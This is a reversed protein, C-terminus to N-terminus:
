RDHRLVIQAPWEPAHSESFVSILSRDIWAARVLTEVDHERGRFWHERGHESRLAFGDFDGFRDYWISSVKGTIECRGGAARSPHGPAVPHGPASPRRGTVEGTQSPLIQGPNGGFGSVRGEILRQYRLLVPYWGNQHPTVEVRWKLWALLREEPYLLQEKVSITLTYQFAGLLHRWSFSEPQTLTLAKTGKRAIAAAKTGKGARRAQPVPQARPPTLTATAETLQRVAIDYVDGRRVSTPLDVYMLGTYRGAGPPVPILTVGGTPCQITHPDAATLRHAPYMSDALGIVAAADVAPLYFSATSGPPTEGWTVMLEDPKGAASSSRIEFPHPMVRSPDTGPNPGDIWAVNRQALKDSTSTTAGTPIPTDDFRIEAILCQHPAASISGNLSETGTWPGDWQAQAAPPSPILFKSTQNVDLWCGFYTDVEMGAVTTISVANPRDEQTDMDAPANLNVRETAFCPITVYEAGSPGNQVGLLPIKHGPTGNTGWRYTGEGTGVESFNSVTSAAQFLRFFVRVPAITTAVSSTIRVRAVAFNFTPEGSDNDPHFELASLDEDQQLTTDFTDGNTIRGPTNLNTLVNRIYDVADGAGTPNPASFMQHAQNPTVKFFRLDFSLWSPYALPQTPDLDYFYPDEGKALEIDARTTVSVGGATFTAKLTIVAVEHTTLANFANQNAFSITYPYLFTQFDLGLTPDIALVPAPGFTNVDPLNAAITALQGATLGPNLSQDVSATITPSPTPQSNLANPSTLGLDTNKFGSIALWYASGWSATAAVEDQAFTAKNLKFEIAPALCPGDGIADSYGLTNEPTAPEPQFAYTVFASPNPSYGPETSGTQGDYHTVRGQDYGVCYTGSTAATLAYCAGATPTIGAFGAEPTSWTQGAGINFIFAVCYRPTAGPGYDLLGMPQGGDGTLTPVPKTGDLIHSLGSPGLYIPWFAGGFIYDSVNTAGRYLVVAHSNNKDANVFTWSIQGTAQDTWAWTVTVDASIQPPTAPGLDPHGKHIVPMLNM